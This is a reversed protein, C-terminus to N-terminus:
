REKVSIIIESEEEGLKVDYNYDANQITGQCLWNDMQCTSDFYECVMKTVDGEYVEWDGQITPLVSAPHGDSHVCFERGFLTINARTSM